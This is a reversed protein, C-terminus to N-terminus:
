KIDARTELLNEVLLAARLTNEIIYKTGPLLILEQSTIGNTDELAPFRVTVVDCHRGLTTHQDKNVLDRVKEFLWMATNSADPMKDDIIVHLRSKHGYSHGNITSRTDKSIISLNPCTTLKWYISKDM